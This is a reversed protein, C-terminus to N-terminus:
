RMPVPNGVPCTKLDPLSVNPGYRGATVLGNGDGIVSVDIPIRYPRWVPLMDIKRTVSTTAYVEPADRNFFVGSFNKTRGLRHGSARGSDTLM